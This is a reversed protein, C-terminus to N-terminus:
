CLGLKSEDLSSKDGEAGSSISSKSSTHAKDENESEKKRFINEKKTLTLNIIENWHWYNDLLFFIYKFNKKQDGWVFDQGLAFNSSITYKM